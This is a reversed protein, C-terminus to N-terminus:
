KYEDRGSYARRGAAPVYDAVLRERAHRPPRRITRCSPFRRRSSTMWEWCTSSTWSIPFCKGSTSSNRTAPTNRSTAPGCERRRWDEMLFSRDVVEVAEFDLRAAIEPVVEMLLDRLNRPDSLLQRVARDPFDHLPPNEFFSMTTGGM